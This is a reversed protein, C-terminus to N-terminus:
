VSDGPFWPPLGHPGDWSDWRDWADWRDWGDRGPRRSCEHGTVSSSVGGTLALGEGSHGTHGYCERHKTQRPHYGHRIL